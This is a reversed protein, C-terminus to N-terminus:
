ELEKLLEAAMLHYKKGKEIFFRLEAKCPELKNERLNLLAMYWRAEDELKRDTTLGLLLDFDARAAVLDPPDMQMASFGHMLIQEQDPLTDALLIFAEKWNSQNFAEYAKKVKADGGRLVLSPPEMYKSYLKGNDISSTASFSRYLFVSAILVAAIGSWPIWKKL